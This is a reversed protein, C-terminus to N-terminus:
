CSLRFTGSGGAGALQYGIAPVKGSSLPQKKNTISLATVVILLMTLMIMLEEYTSMNGGGRVLSLAPPLVNLRSGQYIYETTITQQKWPVVARVWYDYIAQFPRTCKFVLVEHRFYGNVSLGNEHCQIRYMRKHLQVNGDTCRDFYGVAKIPTKRGIDM